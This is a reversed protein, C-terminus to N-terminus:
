AHIMERVHDPRRVHRDAGARRVDHGPEAAITDGSKTTFVTIDGESPREWTGQILRGNRLIWAKGTGTVTVEPSPYGAVDVFQSQDTKVQQIVVNDAPWRSGARSSCPRVTSSDCTGAERGAGSRPRRARLVAVAVRAGPKSPSPVDADYTFVPAPSPENKARKAGAAWLNFTNVFLNHPVTRQEDRSFAGAPDGEQMLTLGSKHAINM